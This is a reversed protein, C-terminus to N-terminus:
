TCIIKVNIIVCFLNPKCRAARLLKFGTLSGIVNRETPLQASFVRGYQLSKRLLVERKTNGYVEGYIHILNM